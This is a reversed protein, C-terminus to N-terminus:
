QSIECIVRCIKLHWSPKINIVDWRTLFSGNLCSLIMRQKTVLLLTEQRYPTVMSLLSGIVLVLRFIICVKNTSLQMAATSQNIPLDPLPSTVLQRVWDPLYIQLIYLKDGQCIAETPSICLRELIIIMGYEAPSALSLQPHWSLACAHMCSMCSM